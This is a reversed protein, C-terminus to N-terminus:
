ICARTCKCISSIIPRISINTEMTDRYLSIDCSVFHLINTVKKFYRYGKERGFALYDNFHLFCCRYYIIIQDVLIDAMLIYYM